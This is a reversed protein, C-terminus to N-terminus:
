VRLWDCLHRRLRYNRVSSIGFNKDVNKKEDVIFLSSPDFVSESLPHDARCFGRFLKEFVSSIMASQPLSEM